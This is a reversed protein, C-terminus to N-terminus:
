GTAVYDPDEFMNDSYCMSVDVISESLMTSKRTTSRQLGSQDADDNSSETSSTVDFPGSSPAHAQQDMQVAEENDKSTVKPEESLKKESEDDKINELGEDDNLVREFHENAEKVLDGVDRRLKREDRPMVYGEPLKTGVIVAFYESRVAQYVIEMEDRMQEEVETWMKRLHDKVNETAEEFMSDKCDSVHKLMHGKMRGYSGSGHEEVCRAYGDAMAESIVPVLERNAEKQKESVIAFLRDVLADFKRQSSDVHQSLLHLGPVGVSRELVRKEILKHFQNLM